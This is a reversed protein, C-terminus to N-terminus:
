QGDGRKGEHNPQEASAVGIHPDRMGEFDPL